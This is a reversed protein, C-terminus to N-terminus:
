KGEDPKPRSKPPRGVKPKAALHTVLGQVAQTLAGLQQKIDNLDIAAAETAAASATSVPEATSTGIVIRRRAEQERKAAIQALLKAANGRDTITGHGVGQCQIDNLAALEELTHINAAIYAAARGEDVLQTLPTGKRQEVPKGDCYADWESKFKAMHEPTVRKVLTNKEGVFSIEIMDRGNDKYFRARQEFERIVPESIVDNM